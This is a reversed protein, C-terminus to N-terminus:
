ATYDCMIFPEIGKKDQFVFIQFIKKLYEPEYLMGRKNTCIYGSYEDTYTRAFKARCVTENRQLWNIIEVAKKPLVMKRGNIENGSIYFDFKENIGYYNVCRCVCVTKSKGIVWEIDEYKLGLLEDLNLRLLLALKVIALHRLRTLKALIANYELETFDFNQTGM